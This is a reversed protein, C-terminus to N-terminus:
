GIVTKGFEFRFDISKGTSAQNFQLQVRSNTGGGNSKVTYTWGPALVVWALSLSTSSVRVGVCGAEGAYNVAVDPDTMNPITPDGFDGFCDLGVPAPAPATTTAGGSGGSGGSGGGKAAAPGALGLAAVLSLSAVVASTALRPLRPMTFETEPPRRRRGTDRM